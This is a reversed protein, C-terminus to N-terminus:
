QRRRRKPVPEEEETEDDDQEEETQDDDDDVDDNGDDGDDEDENDEDEHEDEDEDEDEDEEEMKEEEESEEVAPQEFCGTDLAHQLVTRLCANISADSNKSHRLQKFITTANLTAGHAMLLSVVGSDTVALAEDLASLGKSSRKNVDVAVGCSTSGVLLEKMVKPIRKDSRLSRSWRLLVTDGQKDVMNVAEPGARVLLRVRERDFSHMLATEGSDNVLSPDAGAALLARIVNPDSAIMLATGGNRSRGNILAPPDAALLVKVLDVRGCSAAAILPSGNATKHNIDSKYELLLEVM